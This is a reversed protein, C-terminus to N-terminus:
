APALTALKLVTNWNRATGRIGLTKEIVTNTLKSPGIGDPYTIYLHKGDARIQERGPIKAELALVNKTTPAAKLCMVVLHGPDDKAAGDGQQEDVFM